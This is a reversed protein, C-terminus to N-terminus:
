SDRPSPSTYLLCAEPRQEGTETQDAADSLDRADSDSLPQHREGAKVTGEDADADDQDDDRQRRSSGQAICVRMRVHRHDLHRQQRAQRHERRQGGRGELHDGPGSLPDLDGAALGHDSLAIRAVHEVGDGVALEVDVHVAHVQTGCRAAVEETLDGQEGVDGAGCRHPCSGVALQQGDMAVRKKERDGAVLDRVSSCGGVDVAEIELLLHTSGAAGPAGGAVVLLREHGANQWSEGILTAAHCGVLEACVAVREDVPDGLVEFADLLVRHGALHLGAVDASRQGLVRGQCGLREGLHQGVEIPHGHPCTTADGIAAMMREELVPSMAHELREAEEHVEDWPIGLVDTLFREILRHRRVIGEAHERGSDTFSILKDEGRTIYGDRELRRLMEHVTPPSLQMARAVNAATMPLGAEHLWFITQLYEEEAVTAHEQSM